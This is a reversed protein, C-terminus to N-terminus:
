AMAINTIRIGLREAAMAVAVSMKIMAAQFTHDTEAQDSAEAINIMMQISYVILLSSNRSSPIEEPFGKGFYAFHTKMKMTTSTTTPM